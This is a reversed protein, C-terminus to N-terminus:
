WFGSTNVPFGTSGSTFIMLAEQEDKAYFEMPLDRANKEERPGEQKNREFEIWNGLPPTRATDELISNIFNRYRPSSIMVNPEATSLVHQMDRKTTGTFIPVAMANTMWLALLTVVIRTLLQVPVPVQLFIVWM